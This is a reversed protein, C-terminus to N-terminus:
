VHAATSIAICSPPTPELALLSIVRDKEGNVGLRQESTFYITNSRVDALLGIGRGGGEREREAPM